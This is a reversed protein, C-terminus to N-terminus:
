LGEKKAAALDSMIDRLTRLDDVQQEMLHLRTIDLATTDGAIRTWREGDYIAAGYGGALLMVNENADIYPFNVPANPDGVFPEGRFRADEFDFSFLGGDCAGYLKGKFWALNMAPMHREVQPVLVTFGRDKNGALLEGSFCSIYVTGDPACCISEGVTFRENVQRTAEPPLPISSFREGDWHLLEGGTSWIYIDNDSYGDAARFRGGWYEAEAEGRFESLISWDGPGNRRLFAESRGYAYFHKGAFFMRSVGGIPMPGEQNILRDPFSFRMLGSIGDACLAIKTGDTDLGGATRAGTFGDAHTGGWTGAKLDCYVQRNYYKTPPNPGRYTEDWNATFSFTTDDVISASVIVLGKLADEWTKKSTM